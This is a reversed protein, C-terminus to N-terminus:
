SWPQGRDDADIVVTVDLVVFVGPLECSLVVLVLQDLMQLGEGFGLPHLDVGLVGRDASQALGQGGGGVCGILHGFGQACFSEDILGECQLPAKIPAVGRTCDLHRRQDKASRIVVKAREYFVFPYKAKDRSCAKGHNRSGTM